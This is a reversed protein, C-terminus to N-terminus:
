QKLAFNLRDKSSKWKIFRVFREVPVDVSQKIEMQMSEKIM